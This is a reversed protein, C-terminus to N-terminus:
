DTLFSCFHLAKILLLCCINVVNLVELKSHYCKYNTKKMKWHFHFSCKLIRHSHVIQWSLSYISCVGNGDGQRIYCPLYVCNEDFYPCCYILVMSTTSRDVKWFYAGLWAYATNYFWTMEASNCYMICWWDYQIKATVVSTTPHM